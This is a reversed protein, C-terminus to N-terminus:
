GKSLKESAEDLVRGGEHTEKAEFVRLRLEVDFHGTRTTARGSPAVGLRALSAIRALTSVNSAVLVERLAAVAGLV